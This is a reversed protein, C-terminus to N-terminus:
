CSSNAATLIYLKNLFCYYVPNFYLYIFTVQAPVIADVEEGLTYGLALSRNSPNQIILHSIRRLWDMYANVIDWQYRVSM